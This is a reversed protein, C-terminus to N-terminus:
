MKQEHKHGGTIHKEKKQKTNGEDKEAAESKGSKNETIYIGCSKFKIFTFVVM